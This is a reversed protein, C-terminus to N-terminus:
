SKPKSHIETITGNKEKIINVGCVPCYAVENPGHPYNEVETNIVCRCSACDVRYKNKNPRVDNFLTKTM